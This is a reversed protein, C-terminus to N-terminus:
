VSICLFIYCWQAWIKSPNQIYPRPKIEISNWHLGSQFKRIKESRRLPVSGKKVNYWFSLYADSRMVRDGVCPQRENSVIENMMFLIM